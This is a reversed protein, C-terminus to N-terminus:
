TLHYLSDFSLRISQSTKLEHIYNQFDLKIDELLKKPNVKIDSGDMELSELFANSILINGRVMGDHFLGCRADSYFSSLQHDQFKNPYLRHLADIFFVESNGRSNRGKRLQEVGELYSLCIMLVIFGKEKNKHKALNTAPNLFWDNVQREYITIKDHINVPNLPQHTRDDFAMPTGDNKDLWGTIDPAILIPQDRRLKKSM